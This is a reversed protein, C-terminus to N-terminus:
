RIAKHDINHEDLLAELAFVKEELDKIEVDKDAIDSDKDDCDGCSQGAIEQAESMEEIAEEIRDFLVRELDTEPSQTRLIEATTLHELRM